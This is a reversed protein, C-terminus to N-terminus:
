KIPSGQVWLLRPFPYWQWAGGLVFFLMVTDFHVSDFRVFIPAKIKKQQPPPPPSELIVISHGDPLLILIKRTIM